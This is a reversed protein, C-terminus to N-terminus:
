KCCGTLASNLEKECDKTEGVKCTGEVTCVTGDSATKSTTCKVVGGRVSSKTVKGNEEGRKKMGTKISNMTQLPNLTAIIM